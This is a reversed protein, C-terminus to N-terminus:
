KGRGDQFKSFGFLEGINHTVEGALRSHAPFGVFSEEM